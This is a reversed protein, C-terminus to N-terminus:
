AVVTPQNQAEVDGHDAHDNHGDDHAIDVHAQDTHTDTHSDDHPTDGHPTDNHPVDTHTQKPVSGADSHSEDGHADDGHPVGGGGGGDGHDDGHSHDGHVDSHATDFHDDIHITGDAHTVDAHGVQEVTGGEKIWHVFTEVWASGAVAVSDSHGSTGAMRCYREDGDADIYHLDTGEVWVSGPVAGAPTSVYVGLWRRETTQDSAISHLYDGEVWPGRRLGGGLDEFKDAGVPLVFRAADLFRNRATFANGSGPRALGTVNAASLDALTSSSLGSIRGLDNRTVKLVDLNAKLHANMM